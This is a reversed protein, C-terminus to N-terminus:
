EAARAGEGARGRRRREAGPVGGGDCCREGERGGRSNEKQGRRLKGQQEACGGSEEADRWGSALRRRKRHISGQREAVLFQGRERSSQACSGRRGRGAGMVRGEAQAVGGGASSCRVTFAFVETAAARTNHIRVAGARLSQSAESCFLRVGFCAVAAEGQRGTSKRGGDGSRRGERRAATAVRERMKWKALGLGSKM